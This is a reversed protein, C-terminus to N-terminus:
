SGGAECRQCFPRQELLSRKQFGKQEQPLAPAKRKPGDSNTDPFIELGRRVLWSGSTHSAPSLGTGASAASQLLISCQYHQLSFFVKLEKWFTNTWQEGRNIQLLRQIEASPSLLAILRVCTPFQLEALCLGLKEVM